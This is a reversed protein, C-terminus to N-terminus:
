PGWPSWRAQGLVQWAEGPGGTARFSAGIGSRRNIKYPRRPKKVRKSRSNKTSVRTCLTRYMYRVELACDPIRPLAVDCAYRASGGCNISRRGAARCRGAGPRRWARLTSMKRSARRASCCPLCSPIRQPTCSRRPVPTSPRSSVLVFGGMRLQAHRGAWAFRVVQVGGPQRVEAETHSVRVVTGGHVIDM